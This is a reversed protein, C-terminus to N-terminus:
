RVNDALYDKLTVFKKKMRGDGIADSAARYGEAITRTHGSLYLVAGANLAVMDRIGQPAKDDLLQYFVIANDHCDGTPLEAYDVREIGAESLQFESEIIGNPTVELVVSKGSVSFEDIGPDGYVVLARTRGIRQLAEGLVWLRAADATGVLQHTVGAPNSLPGILNFITRRGALKRAQTVRKMGPHYMRAFIFAVGVQALCEEILKPPLEIPIGLAELLDFAGNPRRSGRNGHKAIPVGCSAAVFAAATSVNFRALDSGGTGCLDVCTAPANVPLARRVLESAFGAVEAATEGKQALAVLFDAVARDNVNSEFIDWAIAAAEKESFSEGSRARNLYEDFV